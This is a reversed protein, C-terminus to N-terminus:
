IPTRIIPTCRSYRITPSFKNLRIQYISRRVTQSRDYAVKLVAKGHIVTYGERQVETETAPVIHHETIVFPKLTPSPNSEVPSRKCGGALVIFIALRALRDIHRNARTKANKANNQFEKPTEM